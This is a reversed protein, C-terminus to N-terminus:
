MLLRNFAYRVIEVCWAVVFVDPLIAKFSSTSPSLDRASLILISARYAKGGLVNYTFVASVRDLLDQNTIEMDQKIHDVFADTLQKFVENFESMLAVDDGCDLTRLQLGSMQLSLLVLKFLALTAKYLLM